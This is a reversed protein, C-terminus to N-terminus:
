RNWRGMDVFFLPVIHKSTSVHYMRRSSELLLQQFFSNTCVRSLKFVSEFVHASCLKYHM